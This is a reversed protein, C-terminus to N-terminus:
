WGYVRSSTLAAKGKKEEEELREDESHYFDYLTYFLRMVFEIAYVVILYYFINVALSPIGAANALVNEGDLAKPSLLLASMVVFPFLKALDQSIEKRYYALIRVAGIIAASIMLVESAPRESILLIVVALAGFWLMILFPMVLMNEFLYVCVAFLKKTAPHESNNFRNLNLDILNKQSLSQYFKWIFISVLAVLFIFFLISLVLSGNGPFVDVVWSQAETYAEAPGFFVEESNIM